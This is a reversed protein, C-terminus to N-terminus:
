AAPGRERGLVAGCRSPHSGSPQGDCDEPCAGYIEVPDSFRHHTSHNSRLPVRITVTGFGKVGFQASATGM